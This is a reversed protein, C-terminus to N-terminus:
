RVSEVECNVENIRRHNSLLEVHDQELEVVAGFAHKDPKELLYRTYIITFIQVFGRLRARSHLLGIVHRHIRTEFFIIQTFGVQPALEIQLVNESRRM